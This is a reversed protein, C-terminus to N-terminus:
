GCRWEAIQIKIFTFPIILMEFHTQYVPPPPSFVKTYLRYVFSFIPSPCFSALVTTTDENCYPLFQKYPGCLYLHSYQAREAVLEWQIELNECRIKDSTIKIQPSCFYLHLQLWQGFGHIGAVNNISSDGPFIKYSPWQNELLHQEDIM